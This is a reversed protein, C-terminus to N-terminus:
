RDHWRHLTVLTSVIRFRSKNHLNLSHLNRLTVGSDITDAGEKRHHAAMARFFEAGVGRGRYDPDLLVVRWMAFRRGVFPRLDLDFYATFARPAGDLDWVAIKHTPDDFASDIWKRYLSDAKARDFGSDAHFRQVSFADVSCKRMLERDEGVAFRLTGSSLPLECDTSVDRTNYIWSEVFRFGSSEAAHVLPLDLSPLRLSTFRIRNEEAWSEYESFLRCAVEHRIAPDDPTATVSEIVAFPFGFHETDWSSLRFAILGEINGSAGRVSVSVVDPRRLLGRLNHLMLQRVGAADLTQDEAYRGFKTASILSELDSDGPCQGKSIERTM